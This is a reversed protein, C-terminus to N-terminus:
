AEEVPGEPLEPAQRKALIRHALAHYVGDPYILHSIATAALACIMIPFILAHDATMESVIVASTLPSQVVGSLYAVMCLIALVGIPVQPFFPALDYGLGAGVSLSPSFLGGPIGSVSSLATAVLKLPGFLWPMPHGDLVMKAEIYGTGFITGKSALGALAVLLGCGFAFVIAHSAIFRGVAGPIGDAMLILFRSFLGGGVGGVISAVIVALWQTRMDMIGTAVGFYTYDGLLAQSTLGAAIVAVLVLV